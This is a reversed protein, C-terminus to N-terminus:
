KKSKTPTRWHEDANAKFDEVSIESQYVKGCSQYVKFQIQARKKWQYVKSSCFWGQKGHKACFFCQWAKQQGKSSNPHRASWFVKLFSSFSCFQRFVTSQLSAPALDQQKSCNPSPVIVYHHLFSSNGKNCFHARARDSFICLFGM